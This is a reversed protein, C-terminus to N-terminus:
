PRCVECYIERCAKDVAQESTLSPRWGLAALKETSYRYTPVDGVWGKKGGTYAIPTEPAAVEIVKEAIHRVTAGAGEGAINFVNLRDRANAAIFGMADILEDVHLYPKLQSGDGLVELQTRSRCLKHLLDYIVGHTARSGIVNPFRFICARELFTELAASIM